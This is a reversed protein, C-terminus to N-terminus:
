PVNRNKPLADSSAMKELQKFEIERNLFTM